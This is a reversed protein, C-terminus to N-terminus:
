DREPSSRYAQFVAAATRQKSRVIVTFPDLSHSSHKRHYLAATVCLVAGSAGYAEGRQLPTAIPFSVEDGHWEAQYSCGDPISGPVDISVDLLRFQAKESPVTLLLGISVDLSPHPLAASQRAEEVSREATSVSVVLVQAAFGYRLSQAARHLAEFFAFRDNGVVYAFAHTRLVSAASTAVASSLTGPFQLPNVLSPGAEIARETFARATPLASPGGTCILGTDGGPSYKLAARGALTAFCTSSGLHHAHKVGSDMETAAREADDLVTVYRRIDTNVWRSFGGEIVLGLENM